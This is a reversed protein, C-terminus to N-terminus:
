RARCGPRGVMPMIGTATAEAPAAAAGRAADAVPEAAGSRVHAITASASPTAQTATNPHKNTFIRAAYAFAGAGPSFLTSM